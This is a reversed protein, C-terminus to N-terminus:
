DLNVYFEYSFVFCVQEDLSRPYMNSAHGDFSIICPILVGKVVQHSCFSINEVRKTQIRIKHNM